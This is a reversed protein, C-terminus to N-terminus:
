KAHLSDAQQQILKSFLSYLAALDPQSALLALHQEMVKEDKRVAPGTQRQAPAVEMLGQLGAQLQPLLVTPDLGRHHLLDFVLQYLANSFNGAMVAALHYYLREQSNVAHLQNSLRGAIRELQAAAASNGGEIFLPIQSWDNGTKQMSQLPWMVGRNVHKDLAALPLTGSAHLVLLDGQPQLQSSIEEVAEDKVALMLWGSSRLANLKDLWSAGSLQALERGSETNRSWVTAVQGGANRWALALSFALRGSGILHLDPLKV